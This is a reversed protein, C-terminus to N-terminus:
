EAGGTCRILASKLEVLAHECERRCGFQTIANDARGLDEFSRVTAGCRKVLEDLVARAADLDPWPSSSEMAVDADECGHKESRREAYYSLDAVQQSVRKLVALADIGAFETMEANRNTM